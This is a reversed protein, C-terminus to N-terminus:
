INELDIEEFGMPPDYNRLRKTYTINIGDIYLPDAYGESYMGMLRKWRDDDAIERHLVKAYLLYAKAVENEKQKLMSGAFVLLEQALRAYAEDKRAVVAPYGFQKAFRVFDNITLHSLLPHQFNSTGLATENGAAIRIRCLKERIYGYDSVSSLYFWLSKDANMHDIEMDYGGIQAFCRRRYVGQAPHAISTVMYVPMISEGPAIFSCKFFPDLEVLSGDERIFDREGHVYGVNPHRTMIKVAKEIFTPQIVDDACLLIMFEGSSLDSALKSYSKNICNVANRCVRVGDKLYKIAVHMSNDQSQNDLVIIETHPYTQALASQICEDLYRSHNYNPILISVLSFRKRM